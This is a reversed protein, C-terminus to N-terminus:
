IVEERLPRMTRGARKTALLVGLSEIVPLKLRRACIRNDTVVWAGLDLALAVAEREGAGLETERMVRELSASTPAQHRIWSKTLAAKGAEEQGAALERAVAPPIIVDYAQLTDLYGLHDLFILPSTKFVSSGPASKM